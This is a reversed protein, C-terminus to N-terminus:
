RGKWCPKRKEVFAKPGELVDESTVFSHYLPYKRDIAAALPLDLGMTASQKSLRLSLPACGLMDNAWREAAAMLEKPQVVEAVLGLRFADLASISRGTLLMSMAAKQPIQRVLRHIGGGGATLGVKPEPLGFKANDSAIIVDCALAMELGGGVAYGNVAAIIPKWCEFNTLGGFGGPPLETDTERIDEEVVYKLDGGTSFAREGAGTLVAVWLEPDDRFDCWIDALEFNAPPHLANMVEPRNITVYAIRGRKEYISYKNVM